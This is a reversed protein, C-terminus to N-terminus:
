YMELIFKVISTHDIYNPCIKHDIHAGCFITPITTDSSDVEPEDFTIILLSNNNSAWREYDSLNDNLWNDAESLTSDHSNHIQNPIVFSVTPLRNFDKPFNSFPQNIYYPVNIFQPSPNHKRVYYKYEPGDYGVYPLDESYCIFSKGVNNLATYLNPANIKPNIENDHIGHTHGSFLVIYNPQSPRNTSHSNTFLAGRNALYNMYPADKNGIVTNFSRNEEIVVVIHDYKLLSM